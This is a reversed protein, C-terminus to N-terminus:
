TARRTVGMQEELTTLMKTLVRDVERDRLTRNPARFVLRWGVSRGSVTQGRYEDFLTASELLEGGARALVGEVQAASVGQPLILALDRELPPTAPLPEFRVWRRGRDELDVEFGYAPAAWAPRDATLEGAWGRVAGSTDRLAWKGDAADITGEPGGAKCAEEFLCKVDWLDFDISKGPESWHPPRRAGSIVGTVRLQEAPLGGTEGARFVTGIEFLRVDRERVSWNYEVARVLGSILDTRLYAEDASLPNVIQQAAEGRKPGLSLSHAQHLGLGTLARRVRAKVFELPEDPVNSPRFPQMEVPFSDYGRLRAIEEVLDEERAVDPRWGPVQVALRDDKPAVTFGLSTLGKEIEGRPIAVGLLHEVRKPRLFVTTTQRPEPYVDVPPGDETGGAVAIILAVARRIAEPMGQIDTGREFRYSAETSMKLGTRTNRIRKPDFYACELVMDTTNESVESDRGGMVGAIATAGNADCIATMESTLTRGEGDLTMMREGDHARRVIIAPGGLKHLDFAHMPQNLEFLVYNTADVVNNIPRQGIALLRAELWMPSPAVKVGRIVAAMYRPCGEADEIAVEVGAVTGRTGVREPALTESPAGPIPTLKVPSGIAAGLDRAVGKHCLLDPRNATVELVLRSDSLPLAELLPTGPPADTDVELIGDADMGIGLEIASCLMGQSAVGRIKRATLQVGGPLVAGVPAFPYTKGPTVNTAGCVVELVEEGNNVYCLSLRDANPHKEVREVGVLVVDDLEHHVSEIEDVPAGLMTLRHAAEQPDLETGLLESLWKVSVDM